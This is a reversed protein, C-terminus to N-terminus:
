AIRRNELNRDMNEKKKQLKQEKKRECYVGRGNKVGGEKKKKVRPIQKPM